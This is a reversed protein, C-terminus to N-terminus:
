LMLTLLTIGNPDPEIRIIAFGCRHGTCQVSFYPPSSERHYGLMMGRGRYRQEYLKAVDEWPHPVFFKRITDMETEIQADAPVPLHCYPDDVLRLAELPAMEPPVDLAEAEEEPEVEAAAEEAGGDFTATGSSEADEAAADVAREATTTPPPGADDGPLVIPMPTVRAPIPERAPPPIPTVPPPVTAGADPIAVFGDRPPATEEEGGSLAVATVAASTGALLFLGVIWPWTRRRRQGPLLVTPVAQVATLTSSSASRLAAQLEEARLFRHDRQKELCRAIIAELARSIRDPPLRSSPPPPIEQLHRVLSDVASTGAFPNSGTALEYLVVGLAYVDARGDLDASQIQEPSMYGPTGVLSGAQTLGSAGTPVDASRAIGFDLVVHDPNGPHDVLMVNAPKLDRHVIGVAHAAALAGAIQEGIHLIRPETLPGTRALEEALTRGPVHEMAVWLAGEPTEGAVLVPVVNPHQLRALIQAERRFRGVVDPDRTLEGLVVKIVVRRGIDVQDALYVGAMGGAALRQVIRFREALVRGLWPDAASYGSM